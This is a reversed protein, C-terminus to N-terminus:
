WEVKDGGSMRHSKRVEKWRRATEPRRDSCYCKACVMLSNLCVTMTGHRIKWKKGGKLNLHDLQLTKWIEETQFKLSSSFGDRAWWYFYRSRSNGAINQLALIFYWFFHTLMQNQLFLIIRNCHLHYPHIKVHLSCHTMDCFFDSFYHSKGWCINNMRYVNISTKLLEHSTNMKTPNWHKRVGNRERACSPHISCFSVHPLNSIKTANCVPAALLSASVHPASSHTSYSSVM